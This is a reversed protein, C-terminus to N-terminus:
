RHKVIYVAKGDIIEPEDDSNCEPDEFLRAVRAPFGESRLFEARKLGLQM